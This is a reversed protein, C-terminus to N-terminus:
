VQRFGIFHTHAPRMFDVIQTIVGKEDNTLAVSYEIWFSYRVFSFSPGLYTNRGLYSKGLKWIHSPIEWPVVDVTKGTFFAVANEIGIDTGRQKYMPVLLPILDRKKQTTLGGVFKLQNGLHELFVDVVADPTAVPDLISGFRDVDALMVQTVENLCRIFRELDRSADEDRNMQPIMEWLDFERGPVSAPQWSTFPFTSGIENGASDQVQVIELLYDANPTLDDIFNIVAFRTIREYYPITLPDAESVTKVIPSYIPLLAPAAPFVPVLRYPSVVLTPATETLMDAPTEDVLSGDVRVLSASLRELIQFNGNNVANRAGHSGIFLSVEDSVFNAVPAEIVNYKYTGGGMAYRAYYAIRGSVDRAYLVSYPSSSDQLMDESFELRLKRPSWSIIEELHPQLWDEVVFEHKAETTYGGTRNAQIRVQIRNESIFDTAHSLAVSWVDPTSAGPSCTKAQSVSWGTALFVTSGDNGQYVLESNGNLWAWVNLDTFGPTAAASFVSFSIVEDKRAEYFTSEAVYPTTLDTDIIPFGLNATDTVIRISSGVPRCLKDAIPNVPMLRVHESDLTRGAFLYPIARSNIQAALKVATIVPDPFEAETFTITHTSAAAYVGGNWGGMFDHGSEDQWPEQSLVVDTTSLISEIVYDFNNIGDTAAAVRIIRGVDIATFAGNVLHITRSVRTITDSATGTVLRVPVKGLEVILTDGEHITFPQATSEVGGPVPPAPFRNGVYPEPEGTGELPLEVRDVYFAGLPCRITGVDAMTVFSYSEDYTFNRDQDEMTVGLLVPTFDPFLASPAPPTITYKYGQYLQDTQKAVTWGNQQTGGSYVIVWASSGYKVRIVTKLDAVGRAPTPTATFENAAVLKVHAERKAIRDAVYLTIPSDTRVNTQGDEPTTRVLDIFPESLQAPAVSSSIDFSDLGLLWLPTPVSPQQQDFESQLLNTIVEDTRFLISEVAGPSYQELWTAAYVELQQDSLAWEMLMDVTEDARYFISQEDDPTCVMLWSSADSAQWTDLEAIGYDTATM